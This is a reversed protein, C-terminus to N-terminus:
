KRKRFIKHGEFDCVFEFGAEILLCAEAETKAVKSVFDVQDQFLAEELQIYILTNKINKHGLVQMVYLVDKTRHYEMTGKWTRLTKFMIKNLRPNQVKGAIRERQEAYNDRFNDLPMKPKAFIHKGYIRPLQQLMGILKHSIKFIRPNSNKEPTIRITNTEFDFHDWEIQWAEGCRIGTEKLLQLFTGIRHSCAAILQDIETEKPVFPLKPIGTYKPPTWTGGTMKLFSSYADVGNAKRGECWPQNSIVKKVSEPDYLDANRRVLIRLLKSRGIITADRYGEKKMWWAFEVLKGKVDATERCLVETKQQEAVLNKTETVCIQYNVVKDNPTKLSKTEIMEITEIAKKAELVDNPDSFRLGCERCLWRQIPDGFMPSRTGDRWAQKSSCQPCLPSTGASDQASESKCSKSGAKTGFIGDPSPKSTLEAM